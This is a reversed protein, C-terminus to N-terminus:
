SSKVNQNGKKENRRKILIDEAKKKNADIMEQVDKRSKNFENEHKEFGKTHVADDLTGPKSESRQHASLQAHKPVHGQFRNQTPRTPRTVYYVVCSM